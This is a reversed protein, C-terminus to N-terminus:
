AVALELARRPARGEGIVCLGIQQLDVSLDCRRHAAIARWARQMGPSWHIDDFMLVARPSLHPLLQEFYALTAQEDHHGDIFALDVPGCERLVGPLTDKFRGVTVAVRDLALGALNHEAMRALPVAGELTYLRGRRNLELGVAQYAASIGLCTGLELCVVPQLARVAKLLFLAWRYSKSSSRCLEGVTRTVVRGEHMEEASLTGEATRAGYDINSIKVSSHNLERRVREIRDIWAREERSVDDDLAARLAAM